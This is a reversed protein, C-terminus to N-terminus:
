ARWGLRTAKELDSKAMEKLFKIGHGLEQNIPRGQECYPCADAPFNDMDVELLADLTVGILETTAKKDASRNCLAFCSVVEGGAAQVAKVTAAASGGTNLVDEVVLVRRGLVRSPYGRKLVRGDPSEDAFVAMISVDGTFRRLWETVRNAVLVGGVTPGCVVNIGWDRAQYAIEKCLLSLQDPDVYIDDKNVYAKGHGGKTYVFHNDDYIARMNGFIAAIDEKILPKYKVAVIEGAARRANMLPNGKRLDSGMVIYSAGNAVAEGPTTVRKQTGLDSGAFRIGPSIVMFAPNIALVKATEKPSCVIAQVGADAALQAWRIVVEEPAGQIGMAELDSRDLSTLLTVAIVMPADSGAGFNEKVAKVADELARKGASCHVTFGLIRGQGYKAIEKAAGAVTAPIDGYKLDWMIKYPTSELVYPVIPEGTLLQHTLVEMGLKVAGIEGGFADLYQKLEVLSGVDAAFIIRKKPNM